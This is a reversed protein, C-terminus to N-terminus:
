EFNLSAQVSGIVKLGKLSDLPSCSKSHNIQAVHLYIMTTKVNAHGLLEKITLINVGDELLHTAYTHRLSHVNIHKKVGALQAARAVAWQVSRQGYQHEYVSFFRSTNNAWRSGTFLWDTPKFLRIYKELITTLNTGLPVYRDKRGKAQRIHVVARELDIDYVKINRVESCRLGCGYLLAILVRHKMLCACNMMATIEQKSLVIPLKRGKKLVPLQIRLEDLGEMRYVYRLACVTFKFNSYSAGDVKPKILYLYDQIEDLSLHIPIILYHLALHALSRGYNKSTSDARDDICMRRLFKNYFNEFGPVKQCAQQTITM